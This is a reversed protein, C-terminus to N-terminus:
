IPVYGLEQSIALTTRRLIEIVDMGGNEDIKEKLGTLSMAAIVKKEHDFIPFTYCKIYPEHEGDNIAYGRGRIETLTAQLAHLNTITRESYRTFVYGKLLRAVEEPNKFALLVKGVGTCHVPVIGGVRSVMSISDRHPKPFLKEVIVVDTGELIGIHVILGTEEATKEIYPMAIHRLDMAESVVNGLRFLEIGPQYKKTIDDYKLFNDATLTYLLRLITSKSLGSLRSVESLTLANRDSNFLKLLHLARQVAIITYRGEEL